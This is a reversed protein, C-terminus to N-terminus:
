RSGFVPWSSNSSSVASAAGAEPPAAGTRVRLAAATASTEGATAFDLPRDLQLTRTPAGSADYPALGVQEGQAFAYAERPGNRVVYSAADFSYRTHVHLDGFFPRRLPDRDACAARASPQSKASNPGTRSVGVWGPRVPMPQAAKASM